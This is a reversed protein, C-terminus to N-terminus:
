HRCRLIVKVPRVLRDLMRHAWGTPVPGNILHKKFM